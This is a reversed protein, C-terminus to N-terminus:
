SQLKEIVAHELVNEMRKLTSPELRQKATRNEFGSGTVSIRFMRKTHNDGKGM